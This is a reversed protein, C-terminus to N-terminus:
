RWNGSPNAVSPFPSGKDITHHVIAPSLEGASGRALSPNATSPFPSGLYAKDRQDAFSPSMVEFTGSQNAAMSPPLNAKVSPSSEETKGNSLAPNASQPFPEQYQGIALTTVFLLVAFAGITTKM